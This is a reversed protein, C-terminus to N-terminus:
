RSSTRQAAEPRFLTVLDSGIVVTADVFCSTDVQYVVGCGGLAEAAALAKSRDGSRDIIMTESYHFDDANGVFMVDFGRDCLFERVEEALGKVGCGNLVELVIQMECDRGHRERQFLATWGFAVSLMLVVLLLIKVVALTM